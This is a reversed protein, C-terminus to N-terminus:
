HCSESTLPTNQLLLELMSQLLAIHKYARLMDALPRQCSQLMGAHSSSLNQMVAQCQRYLVCQPMWTNSECMTWRCGTM